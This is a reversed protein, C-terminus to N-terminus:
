WDSIMRRGLPLLVLFATALRKLIVALRAPFHQASARAPAMEKLVFTGFAPPRQSFRCENSWCVNITDSLIQREAVSSSVAERSSVM